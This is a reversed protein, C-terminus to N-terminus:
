GARGFSRPMGIVPRRGFSRREVLPNCEKELLALSENFVDRLSVVHSLLEDPSEQLEVCRRATMEIHESLLGLREAGFQYAEGKLTHAPLVLQAASKARLADEIASVSKIGDERFYGLIRIFDNGLSVRAESFAAWNVLPKDSYDM